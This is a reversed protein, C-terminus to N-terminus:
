SNVRDQRKKADRQKQLSNRRTIRALAARVAETRTRQKKEPAPTKTEGKVDGTRKGRVVPMTPRMQTPAMPGGEVPQMGMPGTSDSTRKNNPM